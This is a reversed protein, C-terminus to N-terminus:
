DDQIEKYKPSTMAILQFFGVVIIFGFGILGVIILTTEFAEKLSVVKAERLIKFKKDM